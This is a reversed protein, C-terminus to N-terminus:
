SRNHIRIDDISGNLQVENAGRGGIRFGNSMDIRGSLSATNQIKGDFYTRINSGDYTAGVLHWLGEQNSMDSKITSIEGLAKVALDNSSDGNAEFTFQHEEGNDIWTNFAGNWENSTGSSGWEDYKVWMFVSLKTTNFYDRGSIRVYDDNGDFGYAEGIKGRVMSAGNITGNNGQGSVDVAWGNKTQENNFTWYGVLQDTPACKIGSEASIPYHTMDAKITELPYTKEVTLNLTTIERSSLDIDYVQNETVNDGILGLSINTNNNIPEGTNQIIVNLEDSSRNFKVSMIDLGLESARNIDIAKQTTGEQTNQILNTM